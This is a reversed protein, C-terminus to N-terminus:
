VEFIHTVYEDIDQRLIFAAVVIQILLCLVHVCCFIMILKMMKWIAESSDKKTTKYTWWGQVIILIDTFVEITTIFIDSWGAFEAKTGTPSSTYHVQHGEGGM